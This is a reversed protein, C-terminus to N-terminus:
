KNSALGALASTLQAQQSQLNTLTVDLANFQATYRAQDANLRTQIVAQNATNTALSAKIGATKTTVIGTTSLLSTLLTGLNTSVGNPGNFLTQIQSFSNDAAKGLKTTDVALTGDKQLTIGIDNLTQLSGTGGIAKILTNRIQNQISTVSSDGQLAGAVKTDANYATLSSLTGALSNYATVFQQAATQVGSTDNSIALNYKDNATTLTSLNLTLGAIANTVTNTPSNITVGDVTIAADQAAQLTTMTSATLTAPSTSEDSWSGTSLPGFDGTGTVTITNAAGSNAATLVLHSSTGDSVITANVGAAPTANIADRIGALTNAQPTIITTTNTGTKIALIGTNFTKTDAFGASKLKATQALATVAMDYSGSIAAVQDQPAQTQTMTSPTGATPDYAFQSLTGNGTVRITNATGSTNAELVLHSGQDDTLISAQVDTKGNNIQNVVGQLTQNGGALTVFIPPNSGVKIALSDGSNFVTNTADIGASQIIQAKPTTTATSNVDATFPATSLNTGTGSNVITAKQASFASANLKTIASQFASLASNVTGYASLQANYSAAATTLPTLMSQENAMLKGVLSPVDLGSVAGSTTLPGTTSM